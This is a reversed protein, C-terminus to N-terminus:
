QPAAEVLHQQGCLDAVREFGVIRIGESRLYRIIRDVGDIDILDKTHGIAVLPRYVAPATADARQVREIMARMEDFTQACYDFKAARRLSVDSLRKFVGRRGHTIGAARRELGVRKTTLMTWMPVMEAFVPVELMRGANDQRSPDQDFRWFYGNKLAPRYDLGHQRWRGGKFVSSDLLIGMSSLVNVVAGSPQLLLHGARFSLPTFERDGILHRLFELARRLLDAVRGTSLVCLNYESYDLIWANNARQANYWWPHLHLGIEFGAERFSRLQPGVEDIDPDSGTAGILEFEAVDPFIVFRCDYQEFLSRLQDAPKLVLEGLSGTGDGFIEYDLTFVCEIM